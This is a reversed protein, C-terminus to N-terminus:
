RLLVLVLLVLGALVRYGVFVLTSRRQLYRLLFAIALYGTLAATLFGLLFAGRESSDLGAALLKRSELLGAGLIAPTGLLFSFRAAAERRLGLFLGATITSGSRSVGPVLATMQALGILLGDRGTISSLPRRHTALREALALLLAVLMLVLAILAIAGRGGEGAHFFRDVADQLVIGAIAAPISGLVIIWGLRGMPDALPRRLWLGRLVGHLIELLDRWFYAIVATLTGLHLAVNFALGPEPWHFLWPVVILHASSSVPLFETLGQVVGLIVAHLMDM